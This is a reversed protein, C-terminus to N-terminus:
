FLLGQAAAIVILVGSGIHLALTLTALSIGCRLYVAAPNWADAPALGRVSRFLIWSRVSAVIGVFPILGCVAWWFCGISSEIIKIKQEPTQM